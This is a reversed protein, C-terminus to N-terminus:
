QHNRTPGWVGVQWNRYEPESAGMLLTVCIYGMLDICELGQYVRTLRPYFMSRIDNAYVYYVMCTMPQYKMDVYTMQLHWTTLRYCTFPGDHIMLQYVIMTPWNPRNSRGVKTVVLNAHASKSRWVKSRGILRFGPHLNLIRYGM